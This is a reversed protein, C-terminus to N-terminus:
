KSKKAEVGETGKKPPKTREAIKAKLEENEKKLAKEAKQVETEVIIPKGTAQDIEVFGAKLLQEARVDDVRLQRNGKQILKM